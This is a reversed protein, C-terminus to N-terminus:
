NGFPLKRVIGDFMQNVASMYAGVGVIIALGILGLLLSYETAIAGTELHLFKSVGPM